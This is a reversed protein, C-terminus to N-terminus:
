FDGFVTFTHLKHIQEMSLIIIIIVTATGGRLMQFLVGTWCGERIISIITISSSSQIWGLGSFVWSSFTRWRRSNEMAQALNSGTTGNCNNANDLFAASKKKKKKIKKKFIMFNPRVCLWWIAAAVWFILALSLM